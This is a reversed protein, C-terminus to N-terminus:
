VAGDELLLRDVNCVKRGPHSVCEPPTVEKGALLLRVDGEFELPDFASKFRKVPIGDRDCLFKTYNWELAGADKSLAQATTRGAANPLSVPQQQKLYKYLPDADPGNVLLKDVVTVDYKFKDIAIQREVESSNPAQGGFQNCPVCVVDFGDYKQLLYRLGPYNM